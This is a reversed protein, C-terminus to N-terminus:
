PNTSSCEVACTGQKTNQKVFDPVNMEPCKIPVLGFDINVFPCDFDFFRTVAVLVNFVVAVAFFDDCQVDFSDIWM